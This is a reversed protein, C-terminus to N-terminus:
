KEIWAKDFFFSTRNTPVIGHVKPSHVTYEEVKMWAVYPLDVYVQEVIKKYAATKDADSKAVLLDKLAQDVTANKYGVRNSSSTSSFNQAL